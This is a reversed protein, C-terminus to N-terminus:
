NSEETGPYQPEGSILDENKKYKDSDKKYTLIGYSAFMTISSGLVKNFLALMIAHHLVIFVFTWAVGPIWSVPRRLIVFRLIAAPISFILGMLIITIM